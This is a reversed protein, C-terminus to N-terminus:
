KLMICLIKVDKNGYYDEFSFSFSSNALLSNNYDEEDMLEYLGVESEETYDDIWRCNDTHFTRPYYKGKSNAEYVEMDVYRNKFIEKLEKITM